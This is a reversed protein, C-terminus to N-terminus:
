RSVKEGSQQLRFQGFQITRESFKAKIEPTDVKECLWKEGFRKVIQWLCDEGEYECLFTMKDTQKM